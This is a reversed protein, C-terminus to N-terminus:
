GFQIDASPYAAPSSQAHLRGGAVCVTVMVALTLRGMAPAIICRRETGDAAAELDGRDHRDLPPGVVDWPGELTQGVTLRRATRMECSADIKKPYDLKVVRNLIRTAPSGASINM